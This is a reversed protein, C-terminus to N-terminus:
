NNSLVSKLFILIYDVTKNIDNIRGSINRDKVDFLRELYNPPLHLVQSSNACQMKHWNAVSRPNKNLTLCFGISKEKLWAIKHQMTGEHTVYFDSCVSYAFWEQFNMGNLSKTKLNNEIAFSTLSKIIEDCNNIRDRVLKNQKRTSESFNNQLTIGDFYIEIKGSIGSIKKILEQYFLHENLISRRGSGRIGLIIKFKKSNCYKSAKKFENSSSLNKVILKRVRETVLTSGLRISPYNDLFDQNQCSINDLEELNFISNNDQVLKIKRIPKITDLLELLGDLENWIFHAFNFNGIRIISDQNAFIWQRLKINNNEDIFRGKKLSYGSRTEDSEYTYLKQSQQEQLLLYNKSFSAQFSKVLYKRSNIILFLEEKIFLLKQYLRLSRESTWSDAQDLTLQM